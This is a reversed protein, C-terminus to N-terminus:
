KQGSKMVRRVMRVGGEGERDSNLGEEGRKVMGPESESAKKEATCPSEVMREVADRGGVAEVM